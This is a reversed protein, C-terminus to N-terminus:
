CYCVDIMLRMKQIGRYNFNNPLYEKPLKIIRNKDEDDLVERQMSTFQSYFIQYRLMTFIALPDDKTQHSFRKYLNFEVANKFPIYM